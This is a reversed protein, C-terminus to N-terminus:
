YNVKLGFDKDSNLMEYLTYSLRVTKKNDDVLANINSIKKVVRPFNYASKLTIFQYMLDSMMSAKEKIIYKKILPALDKRVFSHRGTKFFDPKMMGKEFGALKYIAQNMAKQNKFDFGVSYIGLSDDNVAMVKSIGKIEKLNQEAGSVVTKIKEFFQIGQNQGPQGIAGGLKGMDVKLLINGSGDANVTVDEHIEICSQFVFLSFLLVAFYKM